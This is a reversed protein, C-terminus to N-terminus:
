KQKLEYYKNWFWKAFFGEIALDMKKGTKTNEIAFRTTGYIITFEGVCIGVVGPKGIIKATQGVPSNLLYKFFALTTASAGVATQKLQEYKGKITTPKIAAPSMRKQYLIDYKMRFQHLEDPCLKKIKQWRAGEKALTEDITRDKKRFYDQIIEIINGM